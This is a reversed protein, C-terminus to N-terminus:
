FKDFEDSREYDCKGVRSQKARSCIKSNAYDFGFFNDFGETLDGFRHAVIFYWEGKSALKTSQMTCVQLGKFAATEIEKKPITDTDLDKFLDDQANTISFFFLFFLSFAIKSLNM